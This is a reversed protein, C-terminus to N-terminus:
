LWVYAHYLKSCVYSDEVNQAQDFMMAEQSMDYMRTSQDYVYVDMSSLGDFTTRLYIKMGRFSFSLSHSVM